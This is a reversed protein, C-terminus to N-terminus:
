LSPCTAFNALGGALMGRIRQWSELNDPYDSHKSNVATLVKDLLAQYDPEPQTLDRIEM